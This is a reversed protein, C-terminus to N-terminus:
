NLDNNYDFLCFGNVLSAMYCQQIYGGEKESNSSSDIVQGDIFTVNDSLM